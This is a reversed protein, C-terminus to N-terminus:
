KSFNSNDNNDDLPYRCRPQYNGHKHLFNELDILRAELMKGRITVIEARHAVKDSLRDITDKNRDILSELGIYHETLVSLLDSMIEKKHNTLVYRAFPILVIQLCILGIETISFNM